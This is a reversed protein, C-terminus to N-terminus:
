EVAKQTPGFKEGISHGIRLPAYFDLGIHTIAEQVPQAARETGFHFAQVLKQHAPHYYWDVLAQRDKWWSIALYMPAPEDSRFLRMGMFGKAKAMAAFM